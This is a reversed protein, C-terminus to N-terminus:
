AGGIKDDGGIEGSVEAGDRHLRDIEVTVVFYVDDGGIGAGVSESDERIEAAANLGGAEM